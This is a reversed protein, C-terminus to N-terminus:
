RAPTDSSSTTRFRVPLRRRTAQEGDTDAGPTPAAAHGDIEVIVGGGQDPGLDLGQDGLDHGLTAIGVSDVGPAAAGAGMDLGGAGADGIQDPDVGARHDERGAASLRVGLREGAGDRRATLPQDNRGGFM